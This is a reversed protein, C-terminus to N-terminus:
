RRSALGDDDRPRVVKDLLGPVAAALNPRGMNGAGSGRESAHSRPGCTGDEHPKTVVAVGGRDDHPAGVGDTRALVRAQADHVRLAVAGVDDHDVRDEAVDSSFPRGTPETRGAGVASKAM